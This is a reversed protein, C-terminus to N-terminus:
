TLILAAAVRMRGVVVSRVGLSFEAARKVPIAHRSDDPIRLEQRRRSGARDAMSSERQLLNSASLTQRISAQCWGEGRSDETAIQVFVLEGIKQHIGLSLM